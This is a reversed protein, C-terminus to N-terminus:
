APKKGLLLGYSAKGEEALERARKVARLAGDVDLGDPLPLKGLGMALKVGVLRSKAGEIYEVLAERHYEWDWDVSGAETAFGMLRVKDVAGGICAVYAAVSQLEQPLGEVDLVVDAIGLRGGPKLCRYMESLATAKDPFLCLSCECVAADFQDDRFPLAEADAQVATAGKPAGEVQLDVGVVSAGSEELIRASDGRGSAVDLVLDDARPNLLTALRRTLAEGGPHLSGGLLWGIWDNAYFSACCAKLDSPALDLTTM